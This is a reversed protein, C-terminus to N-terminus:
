FDNKLLLFRSNLFSPGNISYWELSSTRPFCAIFSYVLVTLLSKYDKRLSTTFYIFPPVSDDNGPKLSLSDLSGFLPGLSSASHKTMQKNFHWLVPFLLLPPVPPSSLLLLPPPPPSSSRLSQWDNVLIHPM